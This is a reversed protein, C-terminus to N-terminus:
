LDKNKRKVQDKIEAELSDNLFLTKWNNLTKQLLNM